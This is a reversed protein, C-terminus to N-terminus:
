SHGDDVWDSRLEILMRDRWFALTADSPKDIPQLAAGRQLWLRHNYFDTARGFVTREFGPTRDVSAFAYVDATEAEFVTQATEIPTGRRWRRVLRPYGSDTLSGAGFDTGVLLHDADEWVISTKAEPLAFGGAVFRKDVLDFERAVCADAGGRSLEVMAHRDEPGLAQAGAWVWNEGEAVALADVDLVTEWAPEARRYEALTTRRWLGRPHEADRWFNYFHTGRRTIYPIQERSDLVELVTRRTPEFSPQAQLLRESEANRERVWALATEGGVEELWLYPDDSEHTDDTM